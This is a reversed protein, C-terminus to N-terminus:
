IEIIIMKGAFSGPRNNGRASQNGGNTWLFDAWGTRRNCGPSLLWSNNEKAREIRFKNHLEKYKAATEYQMINNSPCLILTAGQSTLNAAAQPFQTDYCINIGFKLKNIEFVPYSTGATNFLEGNEEEILGVVIGPAYHSM